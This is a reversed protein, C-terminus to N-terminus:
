TATSMALVLKRWNKWNIKTAPLNPVSLNHMWTYTETSNIETELIMSMTQVSTIAWDRLASWDDTVNCEYMKGFTAMM